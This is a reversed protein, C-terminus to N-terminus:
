VARLTVSLPPLVSCLILSDKIALDGRDWGERWLIGASELKRFHRLLLLFCYVGRKGLWYWINGQLRGIFSWYIIQM